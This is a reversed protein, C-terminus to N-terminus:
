AIIGVIENSEGKVDQTLFIRIAPRHISQAETAGQLPILRPYM